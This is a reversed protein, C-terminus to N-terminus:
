AGDPAVEQTEQTDADEDVKADDAAPADEAPVDVKEETDSCGCDCM